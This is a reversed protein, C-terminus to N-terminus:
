KRGVGIRSLVSGISFGGCVDPNKRTVEENGRFWRPNSILLIKMAGSYSYEVNPPVEVLMGPGVDYKRNEITFYGAGEIIYYTRTIKKSIIFTDHGKEVDLLYIDLEKNELPEFQYGKMGKLAFAPSSPITVIYPM